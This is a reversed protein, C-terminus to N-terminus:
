LINTYVSISPDNGTNVHVNHEKTISYVSLFVSMLVQSSYLFFIVNSVVFVVALAFSYWELYHLVLM